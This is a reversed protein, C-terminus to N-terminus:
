AALLIEDAAEIFAAYDSEQITSVSKAKFQAMLDIAEQRKNAKLLSEVAKSVADKTPGAAEEVEEVPAEAKPAPKSAKAAKAAAPAPTAAAVKNGLLAATNKEIADILAEIKQELM